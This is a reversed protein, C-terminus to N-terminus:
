RSAWAATFNPGTVATYLIFRGANVAHVSWSVDVSGHAPIVPLYRTRESSWDEPDVYVDPELSLVNLHAVLGYQPQDGANLVAASFSLPGGVPSDTTARDQTVRLATGSAATAPGPVGLVTWALLGALLLLAARKM